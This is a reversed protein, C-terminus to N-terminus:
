NFTHEQQAPHIRPSRRYRTCSRVPAPRVGRYAESVLEARTLDASLHHVRVRLNEKPFASRLVALDARTLGPETFTEM